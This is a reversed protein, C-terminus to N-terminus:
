YFLFPFGDLGLAGKAYSEFVARKIEEESLDAELAENEENNTKEDESWFDEALRINDKEEDGFM